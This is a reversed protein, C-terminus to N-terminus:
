YQLARRIMNSMTCGHKLVEDESMQKYWGPTWSNHLMLMDTQMIDVLNYSKQFYFRQYKQMRPRDGPIMYTEPWCKRVDGITVEKHEMVYKDTFMNGMVSWHHSANPDNLVGDQYAAWKEYLDMRPEKAFLYGITQTRDERNGIMMTDMRKPSFLITDADMWYGGHDRLVHARVVDAIQALSFRKLRDDIPLDTYNHLNGYNLVTYPTMIDWTAMCIKIYAPMPGEWFTFVPSFQSM